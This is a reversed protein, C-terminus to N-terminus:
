KARVTTINKEGVAEACQFFSLLVPFIYKAAMM